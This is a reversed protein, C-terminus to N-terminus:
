RSANRCFDTVSHGFADPIMQVTVGRDEAARSIFVTDFFTRDFRQLPPNLSDFAGTTKDKLAATTSENLLEAGGHVRPPFFCVLFDM